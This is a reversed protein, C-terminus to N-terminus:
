VPTFGTEVLQAESEYEHTTSFFPEYGKIVNGKNDYVTRGNGIWRPNADIEEVAQTVPNWRRAKGPEAQNKVMVTSGSGDSYTYTEQWRPNSAGHKERLFTHV